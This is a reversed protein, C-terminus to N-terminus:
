IFASKLGNLTFTFHLHGKHGKHLTSIQAFVYVRVCYKSVALLSKQREYRNSDTKRGIWGDM